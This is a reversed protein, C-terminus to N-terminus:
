KRYGELGGLQEATMTEIGLQEADQVLRDILLSMQKIDYVSSGYYLVVNTCGQIKSPMVDTQWGIGHKEWGRRLNDVAADKVCVVDSVGGIDKVAERYVVEKPLSMSAAILDILKWAYGNADLSRRKRHKKIEIDIDADKLEDFRNRFDAQLSLTIIQEGHRGFTLDKLRGKM